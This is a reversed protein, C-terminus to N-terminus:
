CVCRSPVGENEEERKEFCDKICVERRSTLVLARYYSSRENGIKSLKVYNDLSCHFRHVIEKWTQADCVPM